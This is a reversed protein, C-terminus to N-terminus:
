YPYTISGSDIRSNGSNSNNETAFLSQLSVVGPDAATIVMKGQLLTAGSAVSDDTAVCMGTWKHGSYTRAGHPLTMTHVANSSTGNTAQRVELTIYDQTAHYRYVAGTPNASWGALVASNTYAFSDPFGRPAEAYSYRFASIASGSFAYDDNRLIQVVSAATVTINSDATGGLTIASGGFTASLQFDDTHVNVPFYTKGNPSVGGVTTTVAGSITVPFGAFLGHATKTFLSTGITTAVGAEPSAPFSPAAVDSVVGYQVSGDNWSVKTGKPLHTTHPGAAVIRVATADGAPLWLTADALWGDNSAGYGLPRFLQANYLKAHTDISLINADVIGGTNVASSPCYVIGVPMRGVTPDPISPIPAATGATVQMVGNLDIEYVLWRPNTADALTVCNAATVATIPIPNPPLYGIGSPLDLKGATGSPALVAGSVISAGGNRSNLQDTKWATVAALTALGGFTAAVAAAIAAKVAKQSPLLTDSNATMSSDTDVASGTISTNVTLASITPAANRVMQGTGSDTTGALTALRASFAQVNTGILLGLSTPTIGAVSNTLNTLATQLGTVQSQPIAGVAALLAPTNALTLLNLGYSTAALGAITDLTANQQQAGVDGFGLVVTGNQGNVTSVGSGGGGGDYDTPAMVGNGVLLRGTPDLIVRPYQEGKIWMRLTDEQSDPQSIWDLGSGKQSRLEQFGSNIGNPAPM